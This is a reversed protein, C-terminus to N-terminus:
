RAFGIHVVYILLVYHLATREKGFIERCSQAGRRLLKLQLAQGLRASCTLCCFLPADGLLPVALQLRQMLTELAM